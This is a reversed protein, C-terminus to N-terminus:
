RLQEAFAKSWPRALARLEACREEGLAVYPAAALADTGDEIEQRPVAGRSPSASSTARSSGAGDACRTSRATGPRRPGPGRPGSSTRRCTAPPPTPSWRRSGRSGTCSSSRSTGTAGTSACSRSPTGSCSTRRPRGRSTPTPRRWRGARSGGARRRPRPAPWSPPEPWRPRGCRGPRGPAAPVGRRGRRLAGRGAAAPTAVDWAAPIAAHVLEPNFNFFTSVVVDATVAGMPAARSAFYGARGTIGLRAYAEAAEPVFYIMGHLPELTRWTKRALLASPRDTDDPTM